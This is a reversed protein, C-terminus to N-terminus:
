GSRGLFEQRAVALRDRLRDWEGSTERALDSIVPAWEPDPAHEALLRRVRGAEAALCETHERLVAIQKMAWEPVPYGPTASAIDERLRDLFNAADVWWAASWPIDTLPYESTHGRRARPDKM